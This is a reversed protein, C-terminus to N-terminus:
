SRLPPYVIIGSTGEIGENTISREKGKFHEVYTIGNKEHLKVWSKVAFINLNERTASIVPIRQDTACISLIGPFGLHSSLPGSYRLPAAPEEPSTSFTAAM